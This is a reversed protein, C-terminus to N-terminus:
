FHRGSPLIGEPLCNDPNDNVFPLFCQIRISLCKWKRGVQIKSGPGGGIAKIQLATKILKKEIQVHEYIHFMNTVNWFVSFVCKREYSSSYKKLLDSIKLLQMFYHLLCIKLLFFEFFPVWPLFIIFFQNKTTKIM